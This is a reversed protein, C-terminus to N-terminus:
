EQGGPAAVFVLLPSEEVMDIRARVPMGIRVEDVPIDVVRSMLRPGEELTVLVVTYDAGERARVITVSYVVARGSATVWDIAQSGCHPCCVRPFFHFRGCDRCQPIEFRGDALADFYRKDCAAATASQREGMRNADLETM